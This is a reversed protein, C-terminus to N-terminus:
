NHVISVTTGKAEPVNRRRKGKIILLFEHGDLLAGLPWDMSARVWELAELPEGHDVFFKSNVASVLGSTDDPDFLKGRLEAKRVYGVSSAEMIPIANERVFDLSVDHM